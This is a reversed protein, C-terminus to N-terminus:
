GLYPNILERAMEPDSPTAVVHRVGDLIASCNEWRGFLGTGRSQLLKNHMMGSWYDTHDSWQELRSFELLHGLRSDLDQLAAYFYDSVWGRDRGFFDAIASVSGFKGKYRACVLLLLEEGSEDGGRKYM